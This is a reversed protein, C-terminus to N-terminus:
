ELLSLKRFLWMDLVRQGSGHWLALWRSIKQQRLRCMDDAGM